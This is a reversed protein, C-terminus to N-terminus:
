IDLEADHAHAHIFDRRPPVETGMLKNLASKLTGEVTRLGPQIQWGCYETGDYAVRLLYRM